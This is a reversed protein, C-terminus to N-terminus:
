SNLIKEVDKVDGRQADDVANSIDQATEKRDEVADNKKDVAREGESKAPFYAMIREAFKTIGSVGTFFGGLGSV